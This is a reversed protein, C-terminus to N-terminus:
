NVFFINMWGDVIQNALDDPNLWHHYPVENIYTTSNYLWGQMINEGIGAFLMQNSNYNNLKNYLEQLQSYQAQLQQYLNQDTNGTAQFQQSLQDYQKSLKDYQIQTQIANADGCLTYGGDYGRQEPSIGEPTDHEFYNRKGMDNSHQEAIQSLKQDLGLSQLNNKERQVNIASHIKQELDSPVIVYQSEQMPKQENLTSTPVMIPPTETTPQPRIPVPININGSQDSKPISPNTNVSNTMMSELNSHYIGIAIGTIFLSIGIIIGIIKKPNPKRHFNSRHNCKTCVFYGQTYVYNHKCFM